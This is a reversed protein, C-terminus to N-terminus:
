GTRVVWVSRSELTRMWGDTQTITFQALTPEGISYDEIKRLPVKVRKSTDRAAATIAGLIPVGTAAAIFAGISGILWELFHRRSDLLTTEHKPNRQENDM